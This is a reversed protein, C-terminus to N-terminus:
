GLGDQHEAPLWRLLWRMTAERVGPFSEHEGFPAVFLEKPASLANYAAFITSPPCCMDMLGVTILTPVEILRALNMGDFYSLTRFVQAPDAGSRQIYRGIERYPETDVLTAAREFHCLFPIEAVAVALPTPAATQQSLHCLAATALTLGGGQSGGAAVLRKADIDPQSALVQVARLADIYAGRYYYGDPSRIGQTLYGPAHGGPYGGSDSSEGSQGRVDIALVAFGQSVWSLLEFPDPRLSSYGHFLVLAPYPGNSSVPQPLAYTGVIEAGQWGAYSLRQLRVHRYPLDLPELAVALPEAAALDLTELWFANFDPQSTAAPQYRHLDDLPLDFYAMAAVDKENSRTGSTESAPTPCRTPLPLLLVLAFVLSRLLM